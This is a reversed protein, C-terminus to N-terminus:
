NRKRNVILFSIIILLITVGIAGAFVWLTDPAKENQPDVPITDEETAPDETNNPTETAPNSDSDNPAVVPDESTVVPDEPAQPTAHALITYRVSAGPKGLDNNDADKLQFTNAVFYNSGAGVAVFRITYLQFPEGTLTSSMKITGAKPSSTASGSVYKLLAPNYLLEGEVFGLRSASYKVTVSLTDGVEVSTDSAIIVSGTEAFSSVPFLWVVCLFAILITKVNPLKM